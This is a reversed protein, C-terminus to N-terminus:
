LKVSIWFLQWDFSGFGALYDIFHVLSVSFFTM